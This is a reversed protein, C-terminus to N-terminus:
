ASMDKLFGTVITVIRTVITVQEEIMRELDDVEISENAQAMMNIFILTIKLNYEAM